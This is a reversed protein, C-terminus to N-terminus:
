SMIGKTCLLELGEEHAKVIYCMPEDTGKDRYQMLEYIDDGKIKVHSIKSNFLLKGMKLIDKIDM